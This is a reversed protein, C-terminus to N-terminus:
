YNAESDSKNGELLGKLCVHLRYKKVATVTIYRLLAVYQSLYTKTFVWLLDPDASNPM